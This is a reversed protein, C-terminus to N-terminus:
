ANGYRRLYQSPLALWSGLLVGSCRSQKVDYAEAEKQGLFSEIGPLRLWQTRPWAERNRLIGLLVGSRGLPEARAFSSSKCRAAGAPPHLAPM